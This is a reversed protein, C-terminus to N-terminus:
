NHVYNNEPPRQTQHQTETPMDKNDGNSVPNTLLPTLIKLNEAAYRMHFSYVKGRLPGELIGFRLHTKNRSIFEVLYLDGFHDYHCTEGAKLQINLGSITFGQKEAEAYTM